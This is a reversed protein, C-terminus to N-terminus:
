LMLFKTQELAILASYMLSPNFTSPLGAASIPASLATTLTSTAAALSTASVSTPTLTDANYNNNSNVLAAIATTLPTIQAANLTGETTSALVSVLNFEQTGIAGAAKVVFPAVMGTTDISYEGSANTTATKFNGNADTLLVSANPLAAGVAVLGGVTTTPQSSTNIGGGGGCAVLVAAAAPLMMLKLTKTLM